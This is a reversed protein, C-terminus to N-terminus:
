PKEEEKPAEVPALMDAGVEALIYPSLRVLYRLGAALAYSGEVTGPWESDGNRVTVADGTQHPM